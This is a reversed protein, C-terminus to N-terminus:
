FYQSARDELSSYDNESEALGTQARGYGGGGTMPTSLLSRLGALIGGGGSTGSGAGTGTSAGGGSPAAAPISITNMAGSVDMTAYQFERDGATSQRYRYYAFGGGAFVLCVAVIGVIGAVPFASTSVSPADGSTFASQAYVAWQADGAAGIRPPPATPHTSSHHDSKDTHSPSKQQWSLQRM